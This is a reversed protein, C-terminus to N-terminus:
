PQRRLHKFNKSFERLLVKRRRSGFTVFERRRNEFCEFPRLPQDRMIFCPLQKVTRNVESEENCRPLHRSPQFLFLFQVRTRNAKEFCKSLQRQKTIVIVSLVVLALDFDRGLREDLSDLSRRAALHKRSKELEDYRPLDRIGGARVARRSGARAASNNM